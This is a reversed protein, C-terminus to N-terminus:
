VQRVIEECSLREFRTKGITEICVFTIMGTRAKKDTRMALALAERTVDSPIETPLGCRVLLREIREADSPKCIGLKV